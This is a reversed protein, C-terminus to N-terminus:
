NLTCRITANIVNGDTFKTAAIGVKVDMDYSMGFTGRNGVQILYLKSGQVSIEAPYTGTPWQITADNGKVFISFTDNNSTLCTVTAFDDNAIAQTANVSVLLIMGGILSKM